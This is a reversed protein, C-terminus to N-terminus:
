QRHRSGDHHFTVVDFTNRGVLWTNKETPDKEIRSDRILSYRLVDMPNKGGFKLGGDLLAQAVKKGHMKGGAETIAQFAADAIKMGRFRRDHGRSVPEDKAPTEPAPTPVETAEHGHTKLIQRYLAALEM